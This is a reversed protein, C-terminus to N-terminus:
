VAAMLDAAIWLWRTPPTTWVERYTAINAPPWYPEDLNGKTEVGVTLEGVTEGLLATYMQGYRDGEGYILSQGFPNKGLTWYLQERGIQLLEEDEFYRGLITAAKGMSLLVGSNGRFSFWVPFAKLYCDKGLSIGNKLQETYNNIEEEYVVRDEHVRRFAEKDYIERMEYMGAPIMGYPANYKMLGKLYEGYMKMSNEWLPKEPDDPLARCAASLAEAFLHERCQHASHMIQSHVEDRYFFGKMPLSGKGTEQCEMLSHIFEYVRERYLEEKTYRYLVSAAWLAAAYYQSIASGHAHEMMEYSEVGTIKFREYAFAFDEKAADLCKWALERDFESFGEQLEAECAAMVFNIFSNNSARAEVDDFDGILNDTWRRMGAGSIRYGDGFRTRLIFDTGWQAEELLRAALVPHEAQVAKAVCMLAHATECTQVSEQSVDAADHWGGAYVISVGGHHALVDQHCTGHKGPIPCGCRESFLFNMLKWVTPEFIDAAIRFPRSEFNGMVIKYTGQTQVESFDLVQFAGHFVQVTQIQGSYISTGDEADVISFMTEETNAVATKVGKVDYGTTSYVATEEECQWGSVVNPKVQQLRIDCIEYELEESGSLEKGYRHVIFSVEEVRDHAISDIEWTCTNWEGNKLNICNWGERSYIDPIKVEGNNIFAARICPSHMGNCLPRIKFYLRNYRSLDLGEVNLKAEYSGFTAYHGTPANVSRAETQPWHNNRAGTKLSLKGDKVTARGEGDFTWKKADQGDWIVREALVEKKLDLTELSREMDPKLPIHLYLSERLEKEFVTDM